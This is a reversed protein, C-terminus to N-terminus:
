GADSERTMAESTEEADGEIWAAWAPFTVVAMYMLLIGVGLLFMPWQFLALGIMVALVALGAAIGAITRTERWVVRDDLDGGPIIPHENVDGTEDGAADIARNAIGISAGAETHDEVRGAFWVIGGAIVAILGTAIALPWLTAMLVITAALFIVFVPRMFAVAGHAIQHSVSERRVTTPVASGSTVPHVM